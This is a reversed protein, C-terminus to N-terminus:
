RASASTSAIAARGTSRGAGQGARRFRRDRPGRRGDAHMRLTRGADALEAAAGPRGDMSFVAERSSSDGATRAIKCCRWSWSKGDRHRYVHVSARSLRCGDIMSAHNKADSFITDSRGPLRRWRAWTPPMDPPLCCRRKPGKSSPWGSARATSANSGHGTVLPSAGAGWGETQAARVNGGCGTATPRWAWTTTRASISWSTATSRCAPGTASRRADDAPSSLQRVDLANWSTTSGHWRTSRSLIEHRRHEIHAPAMTASSREAPRPKAKRKTANQM